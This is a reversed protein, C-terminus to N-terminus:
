VRTMAIGLAGYDVYMIGDTTKHVTHPYKKLVEDAMVGRFRKGPESKYEFEYLPLSTRVDVGVQTINTKLRRDSGKFGGSAWGGLGMGVISAFPDAQSNMANTYSTQAGLVSGLGQIQMGLGSQISGVGQGYLAGFQNAPAMSSALGASGAGTAGGYAALSAGPLGRGLGTVDMQRAWGLQEAQRRAGTMAGARQAALGLNAQSQMALGAGSNPNVGMSRMARESAAQTTGFARGAAAAAEQALQERYADTNFEMAQRVLGQEVPRFTTRAYDYYDQAQAMQQRQAAIQSQAIERAIPSLEGYQQRAFALQERGLGAMTEAAERSASALPSYDPPPASKGGM